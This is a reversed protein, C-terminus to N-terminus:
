SHVYSTLIMATVPTLTVSSVSAGAPTYYNSGLSFTVNAGGPKNPNVIVTGNTYNRRWGGTAVAFKAASPTGIWTFSAATPQDYPVNAGTNEYFAGGGYRQGGHVVGNWAGDWVLLFSAKAYQIKTTDNVGVGSAGAIFDKSYGYATDAVTLVTDYYGLYTTPDNYIMQHNGGNMVFFEVQLGDLYTNILGWWTKTRSMNDDSPEGCNALFYPNSAPRNASLYSLLAQYATSWQANTQVALAGGAPPTVYGQVGGSTRHTYTSNVNDFHMGHFDDGLLLVEAVRASVRAQYTLSGLNMPHDSVAPVVTGGGADSYMLWRDTPNAADHAIAEQYSVAVNDTPQTPNLGTHGSSIELYCLVLTNPSATKVTHLDTTEFPALVVCAVKAMDSVVGQTGTQRIIQNGPIALTPVVTGASVPYVGVRLVKTVDVPDITYTAGTAGSIAAANTGNIDDARQWGYVYSSPTPTWTGVSANLTGGVVRNGTITPPTIHQFSAM